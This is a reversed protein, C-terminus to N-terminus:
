PEAVHVLGFSIDGEADGLDLGSLRQSMCRAFADDVDVAIPVDCEILFLDCQWLKFIFQGDRTLLILLDAHDYTTIAFALEVFDGLDDRSALAHFNAIEINGDAAFRNVTLVVGYRPSGAVTVRPPQVGGSCVDSKM